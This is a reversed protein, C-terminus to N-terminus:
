IMIESLTRSLYLLIQRCPTWSFASDAPLSCTLMGCWVRHNVSRLSSATSRVVVHLSCSRGNQLASDQVTWHYCSLRKCSTSIDSGNNSLVIYSDILIFDASIYCTHFLRIAIQDPFRSLSRRSSKRLPLTISFHVKSFNTAVIDVPNM